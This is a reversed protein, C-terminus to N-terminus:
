AKVTVKQTFGDDQQQMESKAALNGAIRVVDDLQSNQIFLSRLAIVFNEQGIYANCQFEREPKQLEAVIYVQRRGYKDSERNVLEVRTHSVVHILVDEVPFKEFDAELLDIFGGLKTIELPKPVPPKQLTVTKHKDLYVLDDITLTKAPALEIARDSVAVTLDNM